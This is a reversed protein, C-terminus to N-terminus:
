DSKAFIRDLQAIREAFIVDRQSGAQESAKEDHEITIHAGARFVDNDKLEAANENRWGSFLFATEANEEPSVRRACWM